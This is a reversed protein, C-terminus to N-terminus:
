KKVIRFLTSGDATESVAALSADSSISWFKGNVAKMAFQGAVRESLLFQEWQGAKERNAFVVGGASIDACLYKGNLSRIVTFNDAHTVWEFTEAAEKRLAKAFVKGNLGQDLSLYVGNCQVAGIRRSLIPTEYDTIIQVSEMGQQNYNMWRQLSDLGEGDAFGQYNFPFLGAYANVCKLNLDQCALMTNLHSITEKGMFNAHQYAIALKTSDLHSSIFEKERLVEAQVESKYFTREWYTVSNDIVVLVPLVILFQKLRPYAVVLEKLVFVFILIQLFVSVNYLRNVSRMSGFGPVNYILKYLTFDNIKLSFILCLFFSVFLFGLFMKSHRGTTSKLFVVPVLLITLWPLLGTFFM